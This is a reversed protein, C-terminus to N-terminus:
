KKTFYKMASPNFFFRHVLENTYTLSPAYDYSNEVPEAQEFIARKVLIDKAPSFSGDVFDFSFAEKEPKNIGSFVKWQFVMKPTHNVVTYFDRFCADMVRYDIMVDYYAASHIHEFSVKLESYASSPITFSPSIKNLGGDYYFMFNNNGVFGLQESKKVTNEKIAKEFAFAKRNVTIVADTKDDGDLDKKYIKLSYQEGPEIALEKEVHLKAMSEVGVNAKDDTSHNRIQESSTAQQDSCSILFLCAIIGIHVAIKM